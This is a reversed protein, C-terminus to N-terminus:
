TSPDEDDELAVVELEVLVEDASYRLYRRVSVRRTIWEGPHLEYVVVEDADPIAAAEGLRIDRSEQGDVDVMRLVINM